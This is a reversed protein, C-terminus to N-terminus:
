QGTFICGCHTTIGPFCVFMIKYYHADTPVIILTKISSIYPAFMFITNNTNCGVWMQAQTGSGYGGLAAAGQSPPEWTQTQSIRAYNEVLHPVPELVV